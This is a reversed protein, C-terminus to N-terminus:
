TCSLSGVQIGLSPIVEERKVGRIFNGRVELTKKKLKIQAM